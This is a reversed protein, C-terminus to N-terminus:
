TNATDGDLFISELAFLLLRSKEGFFFREKNKKLKIV